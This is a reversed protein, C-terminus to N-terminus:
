ERIPEYTGGGYRFVLAAEKKRKAHISLIKMNTKLMKEM